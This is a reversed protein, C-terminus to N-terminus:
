AQGPRTPEPSAATPLVARVFPASAEYLAVSSGDSASVEYGGDIQAVLWAHEADPPLSGDPAVEQLSAAKL